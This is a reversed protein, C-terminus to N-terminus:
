LYWDTGLEIPPSQLEIIDTRMFADKRRDGSCVKLQKELARQQMRLQQDSHARQQSDM